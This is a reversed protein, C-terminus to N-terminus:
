LGDIDKPEVLSILAMPVSSDALSAIAGGHVIRYPHTLGQEFPMQIKPEGEKQFCNWEGFLCPAFSALKM